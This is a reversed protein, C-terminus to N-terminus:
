SQVCDLGSSLCYFFIKRCVAHKHGNNNALPKQFPPATKVFPVSIGVHECKLFGSFGFSVIDSKSFSQLILEQLISFSGALPLLVSHLVSAVVTFSWVLIMLAQVSALHHLIETKEISNCWDSFFTAYGIYGRKDGTLSVPYNPVVEDLDVRNWQSLCFPVCFRSWKGESFWTM